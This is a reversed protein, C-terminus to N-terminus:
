GEKRLHERRKRIMDRQLSEFSGMDLGRMPVSGYDVPVGDKIVKILGNHTRWYPIRESRYQEFTQKFRDAQDSHVLVHNDKYQVAAMLEDLSADKQWDDMMRPLFKSGAPMDLRVTQVLQKTMTNLVPMIRDLDSEPLWLSGDRLEVREAWEHHSHQLQEHIHKAEEPPVHAKIYTVQTQMLEKMAEHSVDGVTNVTQEKLDIFLGEKVLGHQVSDMNIAHSQLERIIEDTPGKMVLQDSESNWAVHDGHQAQLAPVLAQMQERDDASVQLVVAQKYGKDMLQKSVKAPDEMIMQKNGISLPAEQMMVIDGPQTLWEDPEDQYTVGKLVESAGGSLSSAILDPVMSGSKAMEQMKRGAESMRASKEKWSLSREQLGEMGLRKGIQNMAASGKEGWEGLGELAEGGALTMPSKAASLLPKVWFLFLFVIILLITIISFVIPPVGLDAAFGAGAGYDSQGRVSLAWHLALVCGVVLTRIYINMFGILTEAKGNYATLMIWIPVFSALLILVLTALLAILFLPLVEFLVLALLMWIGGQTEVTIHGLTQGAYQPDTIADSGIILSKLIDEGSLGDYQIGSTGIIGEMMEQHLWNAGVNCFNIVTLSVLCSLLCAIFVKLLKDLAKKGRIIKIALVGIGIIISVLSIITLMSWIKYVLGIEAVRPTFLYSKAFVGMLPAIAEDVAMVIFGIVADYILQGTMLDKMTSIMNKVSDLLDSVWDPMYWPTSSSSDVSETVTDTVAVDSEAYVPVARVVSVSILLLFVMGMIWRRM